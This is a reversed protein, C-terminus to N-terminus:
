LRGGQARRMIEKVEAVLGVIREQGVGLVVNFAKRIELYQFLKVVMMPVYTIFKIKEWNVCCNIIIFNFSKNKSVQYGFSETLSSCKKHM